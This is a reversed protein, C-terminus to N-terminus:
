AIAGDTLGWKDLLTHYTGNREIQNFANQVATQLVLDTKRVAIGAIAMNLVVGAVAFRGTNQQLYYSTVPSDQYTAVVRNIALLQIVAEQDQLVISNIAAKGDKQCADSAIQLDSQELSGSQVGVSQGCLDALSEIAHPNGNQVLLSEGQGLYPIFSAEQKRKDTITMDSIVVDYHNTDLAPLLTDTNAPVVKAQLKLPLAIANILDIDFGALQHTNTDRFEMPPRDAATGITLYGPDALDFPVSATAQHVAPYSSPTSSNGCGVLLFSCSLIYVVFIAFAHLYRFRSTM